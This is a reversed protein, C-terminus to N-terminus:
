VVEVMVVDGYMEVYICMDVKEVCRWVNGYMEVM